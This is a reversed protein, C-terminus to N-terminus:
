VAFMKTKNKILNSLLMNPKPFYISKIPSLIYKSYIFTYVKSIHFYVKGNLLIYKGSDIM